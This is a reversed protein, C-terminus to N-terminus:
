LTVCQTLRPTHWLLACLRKNLTFHLERRSASYTHKEFYWIIGERLFFFRLSAQSDKVWVCMWHQSKNIDCWPIRPEPKARFTWSCCLCFCKSFRRCGAAPSMWTLCWRVDGVDRERLWSKIYIWGFSSKSSQRHKNGTQRSINNWLDLWPLGWQWTSIKHFRWREERSWTHRM